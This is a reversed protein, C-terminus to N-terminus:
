GNAIGQPPLAQSPPSPLNRTVVASGFQTEVVAAFSYQRTAVNFLFQVNRIGTVFPTGLIRQQLILSVAQQQRVKGSGGLISQWMPTGEAINEWWEGQFLNLRTQVAQAVADIDTLFNVSGHGMQPDNNPGLARYIITAM